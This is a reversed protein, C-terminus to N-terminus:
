FGVAGFLVVWDSFPCTVRASMKVSSFVNISFVSMFLHQGDNATLFHLHFGHHPIVTCKDFLSFYSITVVGFAPLSTSFGTM